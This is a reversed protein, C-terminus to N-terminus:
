CGSGPPLTKLIVAASTEFLRIAGPFRWRSLLGVAGLAFSYQRLLLGNQVYGALGSWDRSLAMRMREGTRLVILESDLLRKWYLFKQLREAARFDQNISSRMQRVCEFVARVSITPEPWHGSPEAFLVRKTGM